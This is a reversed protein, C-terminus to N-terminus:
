AGQQRRKMDKLLAVMLEANQWEEYQRYARALNHLVRAIITEVSPKDELMLQAAERSPGQMKLFSEQDLSAGGNYCDILMWTGNVCTRALFHNPWNCGRIDLGLRWGVLVYICALSIPIGRKQEIVHVLSSNHPDHQESRAGTIGKEEFLFRALELADKPGERRRFEDALSDLLTKLPLTAHTQSFHPDEQFEALIALAAELKEMAAEIPYWAPWTQRLWAQKARQWRAADSFLRHMAERQAADPPVPLRELAEELSPGFAALESVIADQVFESEDDLLQLLYPLKSADPM